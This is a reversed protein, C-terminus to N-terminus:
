KKEKTFSKPLEICQAVSHLTSSIGKALVVVQKGASRLKQILPKFDGDASGLVILDLDNYDELIKITINIDCDGKLTNRHVTRSAKFHPIFGITKVAKIFNKAEPTKIGFVHAETVNGLTKCYQLYTKYNLKLGKDKLTFYINSVDIYIGIQM